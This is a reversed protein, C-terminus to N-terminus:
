VLFYKQLLFIIFCKEKQKEGSPFKGTGVLQGSYPHYLDNLISSEGVLTSSLELRYSIAGLDFSTLGLSIKKLDNGEEYGLLNGRQVFNNYGNEHRYLYTGTNVISLYMATNPIDLIPNTCVCWFGVGMSHIKVKILSVTDLVFEDIVINISLRSRKNILWDM